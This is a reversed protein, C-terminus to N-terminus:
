PRWCFTSIPMTFKIPSTLLCMSALPVPATETDSGRSRTDSSRALRNSRWMRTQWPHVFRCAFLMRVWLRSSSQLNLDSGSDSHSGIHVQGPHENLPGFPCIMPLGRPCSNCLNLSVQLSEVITGRFEDDCGRSAGIGIPRSSDPLADAGSMGSTSM